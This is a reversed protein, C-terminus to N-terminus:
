VVVSATDRGTMDVSDVVDRPLPRTMLWAVVIATTANAVLLLWADIPPEWGGRLRFSGSAGVMFRRLTQYFAAVEIVVWSAACFRAIADYQPAMSTSRASFLGCLAVGGLLPLTYRGQWVMPTKALVVYTVPYFVWIASLAALTFKVRKDSSFAVLTAILVLCAIWLVFTPTPLATDLWGLQGFAQRFLEGTRGLGLRLVFTTSGPVVYREDTLGVGAYRSWASSAAVAIALPIASVAMLTLVSRRNPAFRRRELLLLTGLATVVWPLAVPRVLVITAAITSALLLQRRGAVRDRSLLLAVYGWLLLSGAVETSAPNTSAVIFMTMPNLAVLVVAAKRGGARRMLWLAQTLLAAGIMASILRYSMASRESGVLRSIGGVVAYYPPPYTGAATDIQTMHRDDVAVSCSANIDPYFAFCNPAGSILGAPVVFYRLLPSADPVPSGITQRHATGYAKATHDLEDPSGYRPVGFVWTCVLTTLVVALTAPWARVAGDTISSSLRIRRHAM